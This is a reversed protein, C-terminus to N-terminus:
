WWVLETHNMRLQQTRSYIGYMRECLTANPAHYPTQPSLPFPMPLKVLTSVRNDVLVIDFVLPQKSYMDKSPLLKTFNRATRPLVTDQMVGNQLIYFNREAKPIAETWNRLSLEYVTRWIEPVVYGVELECDWDLALESPLAWQLEITAEDLFLASTFVIPEFVYESAENLPVTISPTPYLYYGVANPTNNDVDFLPAVNYLAVGEVFLALGIAQIAISFVRQGRALACLCLGFFFHHFHFSLQPATPLALVVLVLAFCVVGIMYQKGLGARVLVYFQFMGGLLVALILLVFFVVYTHDARTFLDMTLTFGDLRFAMEFDNLHIVIFFLSAFCMAEFPFRTPDPCFAPSFLHFLMYCAPILTFEKGLLKNAVILFDGKKLNTQEYECM